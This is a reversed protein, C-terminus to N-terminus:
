LIAGLLGGVPGLVAQGLFGLLDGLVCGVLGIVAGLVDILSFSVVGVIEFTFALLVSVLTGLLGDVLGVVVQLLHCVLKSHPANTEGHSLISPLAYLLEAILPKLVECDAKGLIGFVIKVLALVLQM